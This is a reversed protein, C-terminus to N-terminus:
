SLTYGLDSLAQLVAHPDLTLPTDLPNGEERLTFSVRGDDEQRLQILSKGVQATEVERRVTVTSFVMKTLGTREVVYPYKDSSLIFTVRDDEFPHELICMVVPWRNLSVTGDKLLIRDGVKVDSVKLELERIM